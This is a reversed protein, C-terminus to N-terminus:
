GQSYLGFLYMYRSSYSYHGKTCFFVLIRAKNVDRFPNFLMSKLGDEPHNSITLNLTCNTSYTQPSVGSLQRLNIFIQMWLDLNRYIRIYNNGNWKLSMLVGQLCSLGWRIIWNCTLWLSVRGPSFRSFVSSYWICSIIVKFHDIASNFRVLGHHIIHWDM